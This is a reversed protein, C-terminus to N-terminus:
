VSYVKAFLIILIIFYILYTFFDDYYIPFGLNHFYIASSVTFFFIVIVFLNLFYDVSKITFIVSIFVLYVIFIVIAFRFFRNAFLISIWAHAITAVFLDLAYDM